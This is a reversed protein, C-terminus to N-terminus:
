SSSSSCGGATSAWATSVSSTSTTSTRSPRASSGFRAAARAALGGEPAVLKMARRDGEPTLGRLREGTRGRRARARHPTGRVHRRAEVDGHDGLRACRGACTGDRAPGTAADRDHKRSIGHASHRGRIWPEMKRSSTTGIDEGLMASFRSCSTWLSHLSCPVNMRSTNRRSPTRPSAAFSRACSTRSMRRSCM